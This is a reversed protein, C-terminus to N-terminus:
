PTRPPPLPAFTSLAAILVAGSLKCARDQWGIANTREGYARRMSAGCWDVTTAPV